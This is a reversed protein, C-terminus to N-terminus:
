KITENNEKLCYSTKYMIITQVKVASLPITIVGAMQEDDATTQAIYLAKDTENILYGITKCISIEWPKFDEIWQWSPETRRYDEWEVLVVNFKSEM